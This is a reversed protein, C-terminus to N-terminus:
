NLRKNHIPPFNFPVGLHYKGPNMAAYYAM